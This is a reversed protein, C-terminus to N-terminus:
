DARWELSIEQIWHDDKLCYQKETRYHRTINRNTWKQNSLLVPIQPERIYVFTKSMMKVFFRKALFDCFLSDNYYEADFHKMYSEIYKKRFKFFLDQDDRYDLNMYQDDNVKITAKIVCPPRQDRKSVLKAWVIAQSLDEYFYIGSGLYHKEGTSHNFKGERFIEFVRMETTGHYLIMLM